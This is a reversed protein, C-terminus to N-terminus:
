PLKNQKLQRVVFRAPHLKYAIEQEIPTPTGTILDALYVASLPTSILGRSGHGLNLYLGQPAECIENTQWKANRSLPQYHEILQQADFSPGVIPAYDSVACRFSVRGQCDKVAFSDDAVQLMRTLIKLNRQHGEDRVTDDLDQLDYTAGFHLVNDLTPSAYGLECLVSDLQQAKAVSSATSASDTKNLDLYSVQGRIPHIPLSPSCALQNTDNATCIVVHSFVDQRDKAQAQWSPRTEADGESLTKELNLLECNLSLDINQHALLKECLTKPKVWGSLPLWLSGPRQQYKSLISTPYLQADILKAFKDAENSNKPIQVLGCQQWFTEGPTQALRNYFRSAYLYASLYFRNIPTDQSALKPYLMGQPNGSAAAAITAAKEWVTVKIGREALAYATNAGALGAGVVLVKPAKNTHEHRLNFWAQGQAMRASFSQENDALEGIAMERKKGFAKVKRVNFGVGQLGRRVIGAATFTAFSTGQHSLRRIHQFLEPSWMAPNKSPAFGDLFWADVQGNLQAFGSAAEGFWLTLQVRGQALSIRHFGHCVEPYAQILEDSYESLSPWMALAKTLAAKSLPYKEVSIFHLAKDAPSEAMFAQWACLFNLGTGFGTEGIVFNPETLERWRQYLQNHQLFVFRTEELGSEKDFYVDDFQSSHPAGDEGWSLAPASLSYSTLM